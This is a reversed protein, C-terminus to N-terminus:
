EDFDIILWRMRIMNAPSIQVNELDSLLLKLRKPITVPKGAEKNLIETCEKVKEKPVTYKGTNDETATSETPTGFRDLVEKRLSAFEQYIEEIWRALKTIKATVKGDFKEDALTALAEFANCVHGVTCETLVKKKTSPVDSSAGDCNIDKKDGDM